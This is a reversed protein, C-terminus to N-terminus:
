KGNLKLNKVTYANLSKSKGKVKLSMKKHFNVERKSEKQTRESVVIQGPKALSCLRASVNVTDGIATYDTRKSSGINGIVADGTNIGIGMNVRIGEKQLKKSLEEQAKQMEIAVKIARLAHSEYYIPAGFIAMIGDGIFKDITGKHKLIINTMTELHDNLIEVIKAPDLKESLSTFGRLDSFLISIEKKESRMYNKDPDKLMTEIVEPAVYREFIRKLEGKELDESMVYGIQKAITNLLTIESQSFGEKNLSNILCFIGISGETLIVPVCIVSKIDKNINSFTTLEAQNLTHSAIKDIAEINERIFQSRPHKGAIKLINEQNNRDHMIFLVAESPITKILDNIITEIILNIDKITFKIKSINEIIELEKEKLKLEQKLNINSMQSRMTKVILSLLLCDFNLFRKHKNTIIIVYKENQVAFALLNKINNKRLKQHNYTQNIMIPKTQILADDAIIYLLSKDQFDVDSIITESKPFVIYCHQVRLLNQIQKAIETYFEKKNNSNQKAREINDIIKLHMDRVRIENILKSEDM